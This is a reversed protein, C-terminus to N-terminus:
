RSFWIEAGGFFKDSCLGFFIGSKSVDCTVVIGLSVVLLVSPVVFMCFPVSDTVSFGLLLLTPAWDEDEAVIGIFTEGDEDEPVIGIFTDDRNRIASNNYKANNQISQYVDSLREFM